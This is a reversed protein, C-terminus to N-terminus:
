DDKGIKDSAKGRGPEDGLKKFVEVDIFDTGAMWVGLIDVAIDILTQAYHSTHNVEPFDVDIEKNQPKNEIGNGYKSGDGGVIMEKHQSEKHQHAVTQRNCMVELTATSDKGIQAIDAKEKYVGVGEPGNGNNDNQGKDNNKSKLL